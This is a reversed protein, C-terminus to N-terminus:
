AAALSFTFIEGYSGVAEKRKRFMSLLSIGGEEKGGGKRQRM